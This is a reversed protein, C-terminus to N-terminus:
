LAIISVIESAAEIANEAVAAAGAASAADAGGESGGNFVFIDVDNYNIFVDVDQGGGQFSSKATQEIEQEMYRMLEERSQLEENYARDFDDM